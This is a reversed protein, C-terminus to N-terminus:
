IFGPVLASAMECFVLAISIEVVKDNFQKLDCCFGTISVNGGFFISVRYLYLICDVMLLKCLSCYLLHSKTYELYFFSLHRSVGGRFSNVSLHATEFYTKM